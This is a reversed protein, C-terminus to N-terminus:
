QDDKARLNILHVRWAETLPIYDYNGGWTGRPFDVWFDGATDHNLGLHKMGVFFTGFLQGLVCNYVNGMDLEDLNIKEVWRNDEFYNTILKTAPALDYVTETEM